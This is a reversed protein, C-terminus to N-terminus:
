ATPEANPRRAAELAQLDEPSDIDFAANPMPIRRVRDVYRHLLARAGQDGRLASLGPFAWRPFVAPVGAIGAYTAAV